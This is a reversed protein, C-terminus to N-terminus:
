NEITVVGANTIAADGSLAVAAAVTLTEVFVNKQLIM